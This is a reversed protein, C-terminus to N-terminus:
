NRRPRAAWHMKHALMKWYNFEPNHVLKTKNPHRTVLVQQDKALAFSQQGDLVLTTGENASHLHLWTNCSAQYVIPRFALSQPAIASICLGDIGPSIIPGGVSLNYATSGSPTAVVVGDGSFTTASTRSYEPEIALEIEIMRFPAGANIVADNMAVGHFIPQVDVGGGNGWQPYGAPFVKVDIMMRATMRCTGGTIAGWHDKVGDISFEALFGVKGFNIGLLPIGTEILARAQSLLTGDGGLVLALDAPPLLAAKERDLTRFDPEAVIEAREALWPRFKELVPGVHEKGTNALIVLRPRDM